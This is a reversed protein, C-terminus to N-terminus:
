SSGVFLLLVRLARKEEDLGSVDLSNVVAYYKIACNNLVIGICDWEYYSQGFLKM